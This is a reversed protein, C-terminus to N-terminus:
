STSGSTSGPRSNCAAGRSGRPWLAIRGKRRLGEIGLLVGLGLAVGVGVGAALSAQQPWSSRIPRVGETDSREHEAALGQLWESEPGPLLRPIPVLPLEMFEDPRQESPPEPFDPLDLEVDADAVWECGAEAEAKPPPAAGPSGGKRRLVKDLRSSIHLSLAGMCGEIQERFPTALLWDDISSRWDKAWEKWEWAKLASRGSDRLPDTGEWRRASMRSGGWDPPQAIEAMLDAKWGYQEQARLSSFAGHACRCLRSCRLPLPTPLAATASLRM